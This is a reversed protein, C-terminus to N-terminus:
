KLKPLDYDLNDEDFISKPKEKIEEKYEDSINEETPHYPLLKVKKKFIPMYLIEKFKSNKDKEKPPHNLIYIKKLSNYIIYLAILFIISLWGMSSALFFQVRGLQPIKLAVKGVIKNFPVVGNDEILNKDGKTQYSYNGQEDKIVSIVRHTITGGNVQPEDSYFTIVDGIEIDSPDDVKVDVVVDYVNINPTMSPSIITYLSFKPEYKSGKVAYIKTAIFYYLLLAAIILLLIFVTWSIITSITKVIERFTIKPKVEASM